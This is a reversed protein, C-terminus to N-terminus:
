CGEVVGEGLGGKGGRWGRRERVIGGIGGFEDYMRWEGSFEVFKM